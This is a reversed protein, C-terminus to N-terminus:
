SRVARLPAFDQLFAALRGEQQARLFASGIIAVDAQELVAQADALSSIGFGIGVRSGAETRLRQILEGLDEALSFDSGTLKYGAMVYVFSPRQQCIAALSAPQPNPGIVPILEVGGRARIQDALPDTVPLDPLILQQLGLAAMRDVFRELGYAFAKNLYTMVVFRQGAFRAQLAGIENLAEETTVQRAALRNAETIVPGDATPHSFPIQAEVYAVGAEAYAEAMARSQALSPYGVVYHAMLPLHNNM